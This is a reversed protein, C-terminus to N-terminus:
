NQRGNTLPPPTQADSLIRRLTFIAIERGSWTPNPETATM